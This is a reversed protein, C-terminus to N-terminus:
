NSGKMKKYKNLDVRENISQPKAGEYLSKMREMDVDPLNKMQSADIPGSSQIEAHRKADNQKSKSTEPATDSKKNIDKEMEDVESLIEKRNGRKKLARFLDSKKDM